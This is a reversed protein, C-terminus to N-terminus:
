KETKKSFYDFVVALVIAIFSYAFIGTMNTPNSSQISSIASGLGYFSSGSLVEAMIEIKFALGFSSSIGTKIYSVALPLKLKYIRKFESIQELRILAKLGNDINEHGAVVAEYLIPFSILFVIYIPTYKASSLVLFFFVLTATPITKLLIMLPQLFYKVKEYNGAISGAILALLTSITYGILLRILTYFLCKYIYSNSLIKITEKFVDLVNPFILSNEDFALSFFNWIILIFVIGLLYYKTKNSTYKKM